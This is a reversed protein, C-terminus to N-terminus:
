VWRAVQLDPAGKGVVFKLFLGFRYQLHSSRFAELKRFDEDDSERTTSKKVEVVLLNDPTRRHHVIVDPIVRRGHVTKVNHGDRNYECDVDWAPFEQSLFHALRNSITPENIEVEFLGVDAQFLAEIAARVHEALQRDPAGQFLLNSWM